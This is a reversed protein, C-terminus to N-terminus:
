IDDIARFGELRTTPIQAQGTFTATKTSAM